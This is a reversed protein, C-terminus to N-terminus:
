AKNEMWWLAWGLLGIGIFLALVPSGFQIILYGISICIAVFVIVLIISAVFTLMPHLM